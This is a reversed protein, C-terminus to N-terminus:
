AGKLKLASSALQHTTLLYYEVSKRVLSDPDTQLHVVNYDNAKMYARLVYIPILDKL